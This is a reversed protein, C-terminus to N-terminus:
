WANVRSTILQGQANTTDMGTLITDEIVPKALSPTFDAPHSFLIIWKGEYDKPFNITGQTTEARFEPAKEGILPLRSGQENM